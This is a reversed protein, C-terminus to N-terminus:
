KGKAKQMPNQGVSQGRAPAGTKSRFLDFRSPENKINWTNNAENIDATEKYPDLLVSL